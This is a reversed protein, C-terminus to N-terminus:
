PLQDQVASLRLFANGHFPVARATFGGSFVGLPAEAWVDFVAVRQQAGFGVDAFDLAIDAPGAPAPPWAAKSAGVFGSSPQWCSLDSKYCGDGPAGAAAAAAPFSLGACDAGLACCAAEAAALTLNSFAECCGGNCCELYGTHNVRWDPCPVPAGHRNLLAVAVDGSALRRWWRQLPAAASAEVRVGMLGAADQDIAIAAANLLVAASAASMNRFDASVMLPQALVSWLAMQTREEDATLCGAGILLQDADFWRGPGHIAGMEVAWDGFHDIIEFLDASRCNIDRWVRWQNCGAAVVAGWDVVSINGCDHKVDCMTYDPWSCSYIIDRGTATLAAGMRPYGDAYYSANQNCGDVKLYDVGWAAFTAADLAEYGQSAELGCCTVTSEATYTGLKMGLAHVAAATPALTGGPWAAPNAILEGTTKNRGAIYCDDQSLITYGADAFGRAKMASAQGRILADSICYTSAPNTCDDDPGNAGAGNCRFLQWTMFGM